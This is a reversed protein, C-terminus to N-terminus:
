AERIAIEFQGGNATVGVSAFPVGDLRRQLLERSMQPLLSGTLVADIM